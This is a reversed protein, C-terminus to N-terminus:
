PHPVSLTPSTGSQPRRALPQPVLEGRWGREAMRCWLDYEEFGALRPDTAFGGLRRLSDTRILAPAHIHNGARPRVADWGLYSSLYDGGAEVSDDPAGSVEQIPYAFEAEPMAELTRTLVDLCRPYLHQGPALILFFAGRAFDLGINTAAGVGTVDAVVLRSAIMPRASMWNRVTPRTQESAYGDVVVLEFDRLRSHALSELTAVLQQERGGLAVVATVRPARRGAWAPSQHAVEIGGVELSVPELTPVRDRPSPPVAAQAGALEPRLEGLAAGSAEPGGALEVVAARLIAVPLAYPVWRRLREYAASRLRALRQEDSLLDDVIYPLSDASTAVLHEGPVLPAIGSAPETVVVAGAHIADVAGRWDFRWQDDRHLSILVRAQALLGWRAEALPSGIDLANPSDDCIQLVCNHRSLVRAARSLYRTRRLSHTGVFMVDIPRPATSDFRDLSKSYGPRILRATIDLRHMAAVTPQDVAFIAGAKRLLAIHEGDAASPPPEACLFITRRLIRDAPLARDGEMAVYAQPDLLVYVLSPRPEPFGDLHLSSPVAQLELEHQLTTALERMEYPQDRSMVFAVEPM